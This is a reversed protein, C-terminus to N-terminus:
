RRIEEHTMRQQNPATSHHALLSSVSMSYLSLFAATEGIPRNSLRVLFGRQPERRIPQVQGCTGAQLNLTLPSSASQSQEGLELGLVRDLPNPTAVDSLDTFVAEVSLRGSHPLM